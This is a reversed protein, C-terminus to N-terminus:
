LAFECMDASLQGHPVGETLCGSFRPTNKGMQVRGTQATGM